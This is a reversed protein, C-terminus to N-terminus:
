PTLACPRANQDQGSKRTEVCRQPSPSWALFVPRVPSSTEGRGRGPVLASGVLVDSAQALVSEPVSVLGSVSVRALERAPVMVSAPVRGAAEMGPVMGLARAQAPVMGLAQVSALGLGWVLGHRIRAQCARRSRSGHQQIARCSEGDVDAPHELELVALEVLGDAELGDAAM